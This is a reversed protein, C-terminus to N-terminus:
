KKPLWIISIEDKIDSFEPDGTLLSANYESTAAAAFADAYSMRATAKIHAAKLIREKTASLLEIPLQEIAVLAKQANLLGREREIIYLVEGLNIQSMYIQATNQAAESLLQQVQDAGAENDLLMLVAYSDLVYAEPM